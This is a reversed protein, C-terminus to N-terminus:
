PHPSRVMFAAAMTTLMAIGFLFFCFAIGYLMQTAENPKQKLRLIKTVIVGCVWNWHLVVHELALLMCICMTVFQADRWQDYTWGWLTWGEARTPKPFVAQMMASIWMLLVVSCGLAVDIWFNFVAKSTKPRSAASEKLNQNNDVVSNSM